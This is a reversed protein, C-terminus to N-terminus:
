LLGLYEFFPLSAFLALLRIGMSLASVKLFLARDYVPREGSMDEMTLFYSSQAPLIWTENLIIIVFGVVWPNVGNIAALPLFVSAVLVGATTIPLFLRLVATLAGLLVIFMSFNTAMYDTVVSLHETLIATIGTYDLTEELGIFFGVLLLVDWQFNHRIHKENITGLVLFVCLVALTIWAPSIKHISYTVIAVIFTVAITLATWEGARMPGLLRLQTTLHPQSLRPKEGNRFIIATVLLYLGLMVILALSASMTWKLWQFEERIQEPFQSYIVFNLSKATLFVPAFLSAGVFMSLMLRTAERSRDRFGLARSTEAILPTMLAIRTNASPLAPTMIVGTLLITANYWFPSRPSLKLINLVMREALGSATLVAGLGFISLGMFFGDSAFGSLIINAPAVDLLLCALGAILAAAYQPTLNFSMMMLCVSLAALFDRQHWDLGYQEGFALIGGAILLTLVWGVAKTRQSGGGAEEQDDEARVPAHEAEPTHHALLSHYLTSGKLTLDFDGLVTRPVALAIVHGVAVVDDLYRPVDLAAEHGVFGTSVTRGVGAYRVTGELLCFAFEAEEGTHCLVEGDDFHREWIYPIMRALDQQAWGALEPAATLAAVVRAADTIPHDEWYQAAPDEATAVGRAFTM